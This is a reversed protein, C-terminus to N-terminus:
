RNKWFMANPKFFWSDLKKNIQPWPLWALFCIQYPFFAAHAGLTMYMGQHLSFLFFGYIMRGRWGLFLSVPALLELFVAFKALIGPLFDSGAVWTGLETVTPRTLIITAMSDNSMWGLGGIWLKQLGANMYVLSMYMVVTFFLWSSENMFGPESLHKRNQIIRDISYRGASVFCMLGLLVAPMHNSHHIKGFNCQLGAAYIFCIFALISFFRYGFGLICLIASILFVQKVWLMNIYPVVSYDIFVFFSIPSWFVKDVHRWDSFFGPNIQIYFFVIAFYFSIRFLSFDKEDYRFNNKIRQLM